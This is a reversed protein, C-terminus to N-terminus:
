QSLWQSILEGRRGNFRNTYAHEALQCYSPLAQQLVDSIVTPGAVAYCCQAAAARDVYRDTIHQRAMSLVRM